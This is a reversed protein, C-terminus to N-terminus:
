HIADRRQPEEGTEAVGLEGIDFLLDVAQQCKISSRFEWRLLNGLDMAFDKLCDLGRHTLLSATKLGALGQGFLRPHAFLSTSSRLLPRALGLALSQSDQSVM